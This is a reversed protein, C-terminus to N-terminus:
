SYPSNYVKDQRRLITHLYHSPSNESCTMTFLPRRSSLGMYSIRYYWTLMNCHNNSSHPWAIKHTPLYKQVAIIREPCGTSVVILEICM